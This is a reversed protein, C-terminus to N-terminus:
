PLWSWARPVLTHLDAVDTEYALPLKVAKEVGKKGLVVWGVALEAYWRTMLQEGGANGIM